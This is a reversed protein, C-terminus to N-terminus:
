TDRGFSWNVIKENNYLFKAEVIDNTNLLKPTFIKDGDWMKEYPIKNIPVWSLKGEPNEFEIKRAVQVCYLFVLWNFAPLDENIKDRNVEDFYIYGRFEVDEPKLIYGTEEKLERIICEIPTEGPELRGGIGIFKGQHFDNEKKNRYLLLVEDNCTIYALTALKHKVMKKIGLNM